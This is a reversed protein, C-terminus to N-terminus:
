TSSRDAEAIVGREVLGDIEAVTYGVEGLIERTHEGLAPPLRHISAPSGAFRTPPRAQVITGETPHELSEFLGVERLHEQEDIRDLTAFEAFPIDLRLLIEAWEASTRTPTVERLREYLRDINRSRQVPDLVALEETWEPHGIAEFFRQWQDGTYPLMAIWGDATRAPRRERVRNYGTPGIPPDFAHGGLMEISNFAALTELMPVEVTQGEGSRERHLLAATIASVLELGCIKDAILSPVLEPRDATGLSASFGSAAQVIEDFAPRARWPGDQGFGTASVYVLRPNLARCRDPDFGLRALGVPRINSVLADASRILRELVAKGDDHKLDVAISRKNRNVAMFQGGMGPNRAMGTNRWLDGTLGEVKVVEAGWDGLVRTALPGFLVSTLDVIRLGSLPGTATPPEVGDAGM